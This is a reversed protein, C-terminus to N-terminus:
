CSSVAATTCSNLVWNWICAFSDVEDDVVVAVGVKGVDEFKRFLGSWDLLFEVDLLVRREDNSDLYNGIEVDNIEAVM